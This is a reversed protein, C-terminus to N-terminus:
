GVKSRQTETWSRYLAVLRHIGDSGGALLFGTLLIDVGALVRRQGEALAAVSEPTVLAHLARLGVASIVVGLVTAAPLALRMTLARHAMRDNRLQEIEKEAAAITAGDGAARAAEIRSQAAKMDSDLQDADAGFALSLLVDLARELVASAFFLAALLSGFDTLDARPALPGFSRSLAWAIVAAVLVATLVLRTGALKM